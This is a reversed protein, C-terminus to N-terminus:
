DGGVIPYVILNKEVPWAIDFNLQVEEVIVAAVNRKVRLHLRIEPVMPRRREDDPAFVILNERGITGKRILAIKRVGLKMEDVGAMKRKLVLGILHNRQDPIEEAALDSTLMFSVSLM